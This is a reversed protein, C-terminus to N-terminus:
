KTKPEFINDPVLDTLENIVSELQTSNTVVDVMAEQLMAESLYRLKENNPAFHKSLAVVIEASALKALPNSELEKAKGFLKAYWPFKSTVKRLLTLNAAKGVALKGAIKVAEKNADVVSTVTQNKTNFMEKTEQPQNLEANDVVKDVINPFFPVADAILEERYQPAADRLMNYYAQGHFLKGLRVNYIYTRESTCWDLLRSLAPKNGRPAPWSARTWPRDSNSFIPARETSISRATYDLFKDHLESNSLIKQIKNIM